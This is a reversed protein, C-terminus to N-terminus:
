INSFKNPSLYLSRETPGVYPGTALGLFKRYENQTFSYTKKSDKIQNKIDTIMSEVRKKNMVDYM